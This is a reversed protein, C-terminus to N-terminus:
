KTLLEALKKKAYKNQPDKELMKEFNEVALEKEGTMIYAEALSKYVDSTNPYKEANFKLLALGMDETGDLLFKFGLGNVADRRISYSSSSKKFDDLTKQTEKLTRCKSLVLSFPKKISYEGGYLINVIQRSMHVVKVDCINNLLIVVSNDEPLRTIVSYFGPFTGTHETVYISKGIEPIHRKGVVWGYAYSMSNGLQMHPKFLLLMNHKSLLKETYLA